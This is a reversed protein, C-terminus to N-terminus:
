IWHTERMGWGLETGQVHDGKGNEEMVAFYSTVANNGPEYIDIGYIMWM